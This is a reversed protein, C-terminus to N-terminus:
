CGVLTSAVNRRRVGPAKNLVLTAVAGSRPRSRTRFLNSPMHTAMPRLPQAPSDACALLEGVHPPSWWEWIADYGDALDDLVAGMEFAENPVEIEVQDILM